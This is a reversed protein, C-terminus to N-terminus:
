RSPSRPSPHRTSGRRRFPRLSVLNGLLQVALSPRYALFAAEVATIDIDGTEPEKPGIWFRSNDGFPELVAYERDAFGFEVLYDSPRFWKRLRIGRVGPVTRLVRAASGATIYANEIEFAYPRTASSRTIPFTDM